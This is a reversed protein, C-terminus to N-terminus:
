ATVPAPLDALIAELIAMGRPKRIRYRIFWDSTRDPHKIWVWASAPSDPSFGKAACQSGAIGEAIIGTTRLAQVWMGVCPCGKGDHEIWLGWETM